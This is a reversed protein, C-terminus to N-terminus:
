AAHVGVKKVAAASPRRVLLQDPHQGTFQMSTLTAIAVNCQAHTGGFSRYGLEPSRLDGEDLRDPLLHESTLQRMVTSFIHAQVHELRVVPAKWLLDYTIDACELSKM